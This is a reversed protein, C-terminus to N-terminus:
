ESEEPVVGMKGANFDEFAAVIEEQSTMVFPGYNVVPEDLPAGAMVLIKAVSDTEILIDSGHRTFYAMDHERFKKGNLSIEGQVVLIM